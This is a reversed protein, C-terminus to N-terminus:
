RCPQRASPDYPQDSPLIARLYEYSEVCFRSPKTGRIEAREAFPRDADMLREPRDGDNHFTPGYPDALGLSHGIEHSVTTGILNGLAFTACAIQLGRDGASAPCDRGSDLEPIDLGDLDQGLVPDGGRDPRFPDFILDFDPDPGVPEAFDGPHESYGFLSEVFVGGFGPFGDEQTVANVGGIRDYLRRNNTDKGPTNDYGLLGLGNPDPGGIDVRAYLAYDEPEETRVELNITAYDREIVEIVRQRIRRDVARLGFHRLSEKYAPSFNVYVVQRVPELSFRLPSPDGVVEVDGRAIVPTLTGEFVGTEFRVDISRGIADEENIIYRVRRGDVWEPLLIEDVPVATGTADPTFSGTFELLTDGDGGGIFGGGDIVVYQGISASRTAVEYIIPAELDYACSQGETKLSTGDRHVNRLEITGEFRGPEIGAIAPVFTLTGRTRDLGSTQVPVEAPTLPLCTSAGRPMFCGEIHAISQGEGPLLLGEGAVTLPENPFIIGDTRVLSAEPQLTRRLDLAVDIPLTRYRKGDVQSLVELAATGRFTGASAELEDFIADSAEVSMHQEDVFTAPLHLEIVETTGEFSGRLLLSSRGWPDDVFSEGSLSIRTGPLVTAPAVEDLALDLLATDTARGSPQGSCSLLLLLSWGWRTSVNGARKM